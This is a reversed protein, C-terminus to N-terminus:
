NKRNQSGYGAEKRLIQTFRGMPKMGAPSVRAIVDHISVQFRPLVLDPCLEGLPIALFPRELIDPDPLSLEQTERIVDDYLVLDLDITRPAYKDKTRKRGLEAEIRRLLDKKVEEPTLDTEIEVILNYFQPQEPRGEPRTLYVTSIGTVRTRLSLLRIATRVNEEPDINSGVAVFARTM